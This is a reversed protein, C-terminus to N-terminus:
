SSVYKSQDNTSILNEHRQQIDNNVVYVIEDDIVKRILPGPKVVEDIIQVNSSKDEQYADGCVTQNDALLNEESYNCGPYLERQEDQLFKDFQAIDDEQAKDVEPSGESGCHGTEVDDDEHLIDVAVDKELDDNFNDDDEDDLTKGFCM